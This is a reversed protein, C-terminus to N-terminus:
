AKALLARRRYVGFACLGLGAVMAYEHPEPVVTGYVAFNGINAPPTGVTGTANDGSSTFAADYTYASGNSATPSVSSAARFWTITSAAGADNQLVIWYHTNAALTFQSNPTFTLVTPTVLSNGTAIAGGGQTMQAYSLVETTPASSTGSWVSINLTATASSRRLPVSFHDLFYATGGTQFGLARTGTFNVPTAFTGSNDAFTDVGNNNGFLLVAAHSSSLTAVTAGLFIASKLLNNMDNQLKIKQSRRLKDIRLM